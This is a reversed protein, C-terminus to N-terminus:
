DFIIGVTAAKKITEDIDISKLEDNELGYADVWEGTAKLREVAEEPTDGAACAVVVAELGKVSYYGGQKDQCAMMLRFDDRHGEEFKIRTFFETSNPTTLSMAAVYKHDCEIDFPQNLGVQYMVEPWNKIYKGFLVGLPMAGRLCPDIFYALDQSVIREETSILGRYDKKAFYPDIVDLTKKLVAPLEGGVRGLYFNKDFEIGYSFHQFGSDPTYFGDFGAEVVSEVFDEVIFKMEDAYPGFAPERNTLLQKVSEYDKCVLSEFDKRFINTKVVKNPNEKLYKRLADFGKVVTYPIVPLGAKELFRKFMLRDDELRAMWGAGFISKEPYLKRLYAILDNKSCDFTGICDSEEIFDFFDDCKVIDEFGWTKGGKDPGDGTAYERYSPFASGYDTYYRVLNKGKAALDNALNLYIGCDQILFKKM